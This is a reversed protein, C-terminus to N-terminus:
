KYWKIATTIFIIYYKDMDKNNSKGSIIRECGTMTNYICWPNEWACGLM